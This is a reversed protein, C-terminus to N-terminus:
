VVNGPFLDNPSSMKLTGRLFVAVEQMFERFSLACVASAWSIFDVFDTDGAQLWLFGGLYHTSYNHDERSVLFCTQPLWPAAGPWAASFPCPQPVTPRNGSSISSARLLVLSVVCRADAVRTEKGPVDRFPSTLWPRIHANLRWASLRNRSSEWPWVHRRLVTIWLGAAMLSLSCCAASLVRQNFPDKGIRGERFREGWPGM